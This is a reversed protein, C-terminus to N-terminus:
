HQPNGGRTENMKDWEDVAVAHKPEPKRHAEHKSYSVAMPGKASMSQSEKHKGMKMPPRAALAAASKASAAVFVQYTAVDITSVHHTTAPSANMMLEWQSQIAAVSTSSPRPTPQKYSKGM